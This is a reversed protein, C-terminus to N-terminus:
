GSGVVHLGEDVLFQRPNLRRAGGLDSVRARARARARVKVRVRVRVRVRVLTM